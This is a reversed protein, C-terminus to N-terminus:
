ERVERFTAREKELAEIGKRRQELSKADDGRNRAFLLDRHAFIVKRTLERKRAETERALAPAPAPPDVPQPPEGITPQAVLPFAPTDATEGVDRIATVSARDIEVEGSRRYVVLKGGSEVYSEATLTSGNALELLFDARAERAAAAALGLTAALALICIKPTSSM